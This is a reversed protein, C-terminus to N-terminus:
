NSLRKIEDSDFRGSQILINLNSRAILVPDLLYTNVLKKGNHYSRALEGTALVASPVHPDNGMLVQEALVIAAQALKSTDFFITSHQEGNKIAMASSFEGDLGCTVPLLYRYKNDTKCAEIIARAIGDNPTLVADLTINRADAQLLSEMRMKAFSPQWNETAIRLFNATDSSNRPYPGIVKLVGREIYPNLVSMAGNYIRRGNEDNPNGAFLTIYKPDATTAFDLNLANVISQAQFVGVRNFNGTIYYDYDADHIFRDYSIVPVKDRSARTIVPVIGDNICGVILAKAGRNLFNIIQQNQIDQDGNANQIEARFGRKEAETKLVNGDNVWRRVQTEPMAIGIFTGKIDKSQPTLPVSVPQPPVVPPTTGLYATKFYKVAIEPHQKGGSVNLVDIGTRDFVERVSLDSAKLNNLLQGTFLGNRGKGDDATSNASTAYVIISGAPANSVVSLGRNMSRSWAAPFDRCADLVVINLENAADNLEALMTQVSVAADGLYNANPIDARAPILYNVGNFQVGHGAYFFFGYSNKSMSLRNKLLSIAEIMQARNGDLVKNVTFGLGQLAVTIDNADNVANPLSGFSTYNGNGIVLAHKQQAYSFMAVFIFLSFFIRKMYIGKVYLDEFYYNCV